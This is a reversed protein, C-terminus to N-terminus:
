ADRAQLGGKLEVKWTGSFNPTNSNTSYDM